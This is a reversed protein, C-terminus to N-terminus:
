EKLTASTPSLPLGSQNLYQDVVALYNSRIKASENALQHGAGHVIHTRLEPFLREIQVLNYTWDVTGDNDGQIVLLPLARAPRKLFDRLWRRLAGAWAVSLTKSQLPDARLFRLFEKDSSNKAFKRPLRDKFKHLLLYGLQVRRWNHPRVLPALLVVKDLLPWPPTTLYDMVAAGGTSQAIVYREGPLAIVADLVDAIALRYRDFDDITAREGTSLGHGPWDFAVVNSGRELGFRILHQYLGAHDFYGTVLLLTSRAQPQQWVHM